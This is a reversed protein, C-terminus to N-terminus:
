GQSPVDLASKPKRTLRARLLTVWRLPPSGANKRAMLWQDLLIVVMFLLVIISEVTYQEDFWGIKLQWVQTAIAMVIFLLVHRSHWVAIPAFLVIFNYYYCTLQFLGVIFITSAATAQWPEKFFRSWVGVLALLGVFGAIWIPKRSRLVENRKDKWGIFPDENTEDKMGRAVFSPHWTLITPLGMHNTLPTETHKLSNKLFEGYSHVGGAVYAGLPLFVLASALAGYIVARHAPALAKLGTSLGGFIAKGKHEGSRFRERVKMGLGLIITIALGGFLAGPFVRDLLSCMLAAGGLFYRQKKLLCVGVVADWLWAVRGYSGGTWYYAWPYGVGFVILALALVELGFAWGIALFLTLYLVGDIAALWYIQQDNVPGLNALTSGFLNWVPSANYGHDRFMKDWWDAGMNKRFYELDSRFETWREPTFRDRCWEPHAFVDDADELHNDALDRIKRAKVVNTRGADIEAWQSCHYLNTYRNEAFYKAGAYYHFTDWFHIVRSGHFTGFNTWAFAGGLALVSLAVIRTLRMVDRRLRWGVLPVVLSVLGVPVAVYTIWSLSAVSRVMVTAHAVILVISVLILPLRLREFTDRVQPWFYVCASLLGVGLLVTGIEADGRFGLIVFKEVAGPFGADHNGKLLRSGLVVAYRLLITLALGVGLAPILPHTTPDVASAEGAARRRGLQIRLFFFAVLALLGMDIKANAYKKNREQTEDKFVGKRTTLVPPFPQPKECFVQVEGVSYSADGKAAGIKLYRGKGDLSDIVRTRMGAGTVSPATWLPRWTRADDSIEIPYEDNNDGQLTLARISFVRGLDFDIHGAATTIEVTLDTKWSDGEDPATGDTIRESNNAYEWFKARKKSLLNGTPCASDVPAVSAPSSSPVAASPPVSPPVTTAPTSPPESPPSQAGAPAAGGAFALVMAAFLAVPLAHSMCPTRPKMHPRAKYRIRRPCDM